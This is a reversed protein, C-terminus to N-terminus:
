FIGLLILSFYFHLKAIEWIFHQSCSVWEYWYVWFIFSFSIEEMITEMIWIFYFNTSWHKYNMFCKRVLFTSSVLFLTLHKLKKIGNLDVHYRFSAEVSFELLNCFLFSHYKAWQLEYHIAIEICIFYKILKLFNLQIEYKVAAKKRKWFNWSKLSRTSVFEYTCFM